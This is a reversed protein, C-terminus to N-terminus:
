PKCHTRAICRNFVAIWGEHEDKLDAVVKEVLRDDIAEPHGHAFENRRTQVLRLLEAVQAYGLDTLDALYNTSFLIRYLRDLRAGVASYRSLLDATVNEPLGRM